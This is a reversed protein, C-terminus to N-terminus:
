QRSQEAMRNILALVEESNPREAVMTPIALEAQLADATAQSICVGVLPKAAEALGAKAVLEAFTRAADPSMLMVADLDQAKIAEIAEPSLASAAVAEYCRLSEFTYGRARMAGALDFALRYGALHVLRGGDPNSNAAICDALGSAAGPGEIVGHFGLDRADQASRPGVAFVPLNLLGDVLPSHALARVANRSTVILAQVAGPGIDTIPDLRIDMLPSMVAEHGSEQLRAGTDSADPEPRTVLIRM